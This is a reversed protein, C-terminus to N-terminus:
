LLNKKTIDYLEKFTINENNFKNNFIIKIIRSLSEGNDIGYTEFFNLINDSSIDKVKNIDLKVLFDEIDQVSFGICLLTSILCGTSSGLFSEVNKLINFEELAKLAGIFSSKLEEEM